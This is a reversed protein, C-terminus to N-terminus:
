FPGPPRYSSNGGFKTWIRGWPASNHGFFLFDRSNVGRSNFNSRISKLPKENFEPDPHCLELNEVESESEEDVLTYIEGGSGISTNTVLKSLLKARVYSCVFCVYVHTCMCVNVSM